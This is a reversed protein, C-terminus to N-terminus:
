LLEEPNLETEPIRKIIQIDSAEAEPKPGSETLFQDINGKVLEDHLNLLTASYKGIENVEIKGACALDKAYSTTVSVQKTRSKEDLLEKGVTQPKESTLINVKTVIPYKEDETVAVIELECPISSSIFKSVPESCSKFSGDELQLYHGYQSKGTKKVHIKEM